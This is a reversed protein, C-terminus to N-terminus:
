EKNKIIKKLLKIEEKLTKIHEKESNILDALHTTTKEFNNQNSEKKTEEDILVSVTTKLIDAIHILRTISIREDEKELRAYSPQTIGLEFALNEQSLGNQERMQRINNGIKNM